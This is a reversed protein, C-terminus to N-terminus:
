DWLSETQRQKERKEMNERRESEQREEEVGTDGVSEERRESGLELFYETQLECETSSDHHASENLVLSM